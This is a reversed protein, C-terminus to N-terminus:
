IRINKFQNNLQVIYFYNTQFPMNNCLEEFTKCLEYINYEIFIIYHIRIIKLIGIILFNLLYHFGFLM